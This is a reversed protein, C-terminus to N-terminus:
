GKATHNVHTHNSSSLTHHTFMWLTTYSCGCHSIHAGVTQRTLVWLIIHSCGCYPIGAGVTLITAKPDTARCSESFLSKWRDGASPGQPQPLLTSCHPKFPGLHRTQFNSPWFDLGTRLSSFNWRQNLIEPPEQPSDM